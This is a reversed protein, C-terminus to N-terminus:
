KRSSLSDQETSRFAGYRADRQHAVSRGRRRRRLSALLGRRPIRHHTRDREPALPGRGDEWTVEVGLNSLHGALQARGIAFGIIPEKPSAAPTFALVYLRWPLRQQRVEITYGALEGETVVGEWADDEYGHM